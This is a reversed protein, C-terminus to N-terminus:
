VCLSADGKVAARLADYFSLSCRWWCGGRDGVARHRRMCEPPGDHPDRAAESEDFLVQAFDRQTRADFPSPRGAQWPPVPALALLESLEWEGLRDGRGGYRLTRTFPDRTFRSALTAAADLGCVGSDFAAVECRPADTLWTRLERLRWSHDDSALLDDLRVVPRGWRPHLPLHRTYALHDNPAGHWLTAHTQLRLEELDVDSARGRVAAGYADDLGRQDHLWEVAGAGDCLLLPAGDAVADNLENETLRFWLFAGSSRWGRPARHVLRELEVRFVAALPRQAAQEWSYADEDPEDPLELRMSAARRRAVREAADRLARCAMASRVLTAASCHGLAHVLADCPLADLGGM